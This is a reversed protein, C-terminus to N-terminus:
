ANFYFLGKNPNAVVGKPLEYTRHVTRGEWDFGPRPLSDKRVM